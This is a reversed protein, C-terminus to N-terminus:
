IFRFVVFYAVLIKEIYKLQSQREICDIIYYLIWVEGFITMIGKIISLSFSMILKQPAFNWIYKLMYLNNTAVKHNRM